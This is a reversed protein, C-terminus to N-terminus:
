LTITEVEKAVPKFGSIVAFGQADEGVTASVKAGKLAAASGKPQGLAAIFIRKLQGRGANVAKPNSHEVWYGKTIPFNLATSEFTITLQKAPGTPTQKEEDEADTITLEYQGKTIGDGSFDYGEQETTGMGSSFEDSM